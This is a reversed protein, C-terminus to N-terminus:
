KPEKGFLYAVLGGFFLAASSEFKGLYILGAVLISAILLLSFRIWQYQCALKSRIKAEALQLVLQRRKHRAFKEALDKIDNPKIQALFEDFGSWEVEEPAAVSDLEGGQNSDAM